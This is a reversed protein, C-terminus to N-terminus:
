AAAPCAAVLGRAHQRRPGLRGSSGGPPASAPPSALAGGVAPTSRRPKRPLPVDALPPVHPLLPRPAQGPSAVAGLAHRNLLGPWCSLFCCACACVVVLVCCWPYIHTSAAPHRCWCPTHTHTHTHTHSRQRVTNATPRLRRSTTRASPGARLRSGVQPQTRSSAGRTSFKFSQGTPRKSAAGRTSRTNSGRQNAWRSGTARGGTRGGTARGGGAGTGRGSYGSRVGALSRRANDRANEFQKRVDHFQQRAGAAPGQRRRAAAGGRTRRAAPQTSAGRGPAPAHRGYQRRAASARAKSQVLRQQNRRRRSQEKAKREQMWNNIIAGQRDNRARERAARQQRAQARAQLRRSGPTSGRSRARSKDVMQVSYVTKAPADLRTATRKKRFVLATGSMGTSGGSRASLRSSGPTPRRASPPRDNVELQAIRKELEVLKNLSAAVTEGGEVDESVNLDPRTAEGPSQEPGGVIIPTTELLKKKKRFVAHSPVVVGYTLLRTYTYGHM